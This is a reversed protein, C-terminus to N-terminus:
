PPRRRRYLDFWRWLAWWPSRLLELKSKEDPDMSEPRSAKNMGLLFRERETLRQWRRYSFALILGLSATVLLLCVAPSMPSYGTEM